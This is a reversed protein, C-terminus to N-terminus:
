ICYTKIMNRIVVQTIPTNSTEMTIILNIGPFIKYAEYLRLKKVAKQCYIIDDMMGFHEWYLIERDAARLITFDPHITMNGLELPYEYRYPIEIQSLADAIMVESKSRVREGVSTYHEPTGEAFGKKEYEQSLWQRIFEADPIDVPNIFEKRGDPMSSYIEKLVNPNYDKIFKNIVKIHAEASAKVQQDYSKQVLSIAIQRDKVPIYTGNKDLPNSRLYYQFGQRHKVVRVSGEPAKQMRKDIERIVSVLKNRQEILNEILQRSNM